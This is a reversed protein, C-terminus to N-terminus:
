ACDPLFIAQAFLLSNCFTVRFLETYTYQVRITLSLHLWSPRKNSPFAIPSCGLHCPITSVLGLPIASCFSIPLAVKVLFFEEPFLFKLNFTLHLASCKLLALAWHPLTSCHNLCCSTGGSVSMHRRGEGGTLASVLSIHRLWLIHKTAM